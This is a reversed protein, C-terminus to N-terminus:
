LKREVDWGYPKPLLSRTSQPFLGFRHRKPFTLGDRIGAVSPCSVVFEPSSSPSLDVSDPKM